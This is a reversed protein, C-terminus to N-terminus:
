SAQTILIEAQYQFSTGGVSLYPRRNVKVTANVNPASGSSSTRAFDGSVVITKPFQAAAVLAALQDITLPGTTFPWTPLDAYTQTVNLAGSHARWQDTGSDDPVMAANSVDVEVVLNAGGVDITLFAM